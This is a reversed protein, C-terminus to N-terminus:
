LRIQAFKSKTGHHWPVRFGGNSVLRAQALIQPWWRVLREAQLWFRQESWQRDLVFVTHGAQRLAVREADQSKTFRDLSVIVWNEGLARIWEIDPSSPSFRDRLHIVSQVDKEIKSLERVAHAIHPSLNNDFVINM